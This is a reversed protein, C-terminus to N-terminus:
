QLCTHQHQQGMTRDVGRITIDPTEVKVAEKYVGKGVLVLDGAKASSVAAQITKQDQPVRIAELGDKTSTVREPKGSGSGSNSGSSDSSCAGVVVALATVGVLAVAWISRRFGGVSTSGM